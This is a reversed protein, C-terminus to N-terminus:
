ERGCYTPTRVTALFLSSFRSRTATRRSLERAVSADHVVDGALRRLLESPDDLGDRLALELCPGGLFSGQEASELSREDRELRRRGLALGFAYM